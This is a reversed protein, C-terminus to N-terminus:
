VAEDPCTISAAILEAYFRAGEPRLHLGDAYFLDPRGVSAAHWDLLVANPYRKVGEALVANNLDQWRRPVKVTLFVVRRAGALLQMIEDFQRATLTGNNGIHIVVVPGIQGADRRASLLAITDSAQRSVAADVDIDGITRQLERAAGLMVSDGIASVLASGIATPVSTPTSSQIAPTPQVQPPPQGPEDPPPDALIIPERAPGASTTTTDAPPIPTPMATWIGGPATPISTAETSAHAPTREAGALILAPTAEPPAETPDATAPLPTETAETGPDALMGAEGAVATPPTPVIRIAEVALYSPAGPSQAAAVSLALFVSLATTAGAVAAWRLGLWWRELGRSTCLARWAQGVLGKRFPTEICRYPKHSFILYWNSVYGAAALAEGRLAAVEDPLFLVAFTLVAAIMLLLAPLLRRARRLWFGVVRIHGRDVWEALLLATILYGSIVFFVEVGLFGGPIWRLDAHYLLVAIVAIARLGDLAPLYPLGLRREVARGAVFVEERFGM